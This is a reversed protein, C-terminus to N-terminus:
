ATASSPASSTASPSRHLGCEKVEQPQEWWWRGSRLDEGLTVARTCPACGISPFSQDHLANYPVEFRDIYHWVDAWSWDALPSFKQRGQADTEVAALGARSDAQERRLGTVWASRHQLLRALPELKRLACCAQRLAVSTRMVREGHQREFHVTSEEVPQWREVRIGYHAEIRPLLALTQAHLKGTDLTAVPLMLGHRVILDTIVMDEAGLSSTQVVQGAHAQAATKLLSLAQALREDFGQEARAYLDTARSVPSVPSM